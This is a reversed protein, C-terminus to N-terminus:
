GAGYVAQARRTFADILSAFVTEFSRSLLLATVPNRFEFHITLGVRTGRLTEGDRIPVFTWEGALHRFPGDVLHMTIRGPRELVNRTTFRERVGAREMELTGLLEHESRSRLAAGVVGPLFEPYREVDEVLAFMQEPTHPVLASRIVERM